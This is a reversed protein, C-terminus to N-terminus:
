SGWGHLCSEWSLLQTTQDQKIQAGCQLRYTADESCFSFYIYRTILSMNPTFLILAHTPISLSAHYQLM